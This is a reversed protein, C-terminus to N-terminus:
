KINELNVKNAQELEYEKTSLIKELNEYKKSLAKNEEEKKM